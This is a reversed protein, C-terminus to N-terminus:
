GTRRFLRELYALLFDADSLPARYALHGDPRMLWLRSGNGFHEAFDGDKDHWLHAGGRRWTRRRGKRRSM